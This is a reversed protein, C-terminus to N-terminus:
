SAAQKYQDPLDVGYSILGGNAVFFRYPYVAPLRHQAAVAIISSRDL